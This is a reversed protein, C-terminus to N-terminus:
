ASEAAALGDDRLGERLVRVGVDDDVNSAALVAVLHGFDQAIERFQRDLDVSLGLGDNSSRGEDGIGGVTGDGSALGGDVGANGQGLIEAIHTVVNGHHCVRSRTPGLGQSFDRTTEGLHRGIGTVRSVQSGAQSGEVLAGASDLPESVRLSFSRERDDSSDRKGTFFCLQKKLLVNPAM